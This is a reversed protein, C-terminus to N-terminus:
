VQGGEKGPIKKKKKKRYEFFEQILLPRVCVQRALRQYSKRIETVDATRKIQLVAYPDKDGMRYGRAVRAHSLIGIKVLRIILVFM